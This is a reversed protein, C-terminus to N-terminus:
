SKSETGDWARAITCRQGLNSVLQATFQLQETDQETGDELSIEISKITQGELTLDHSLYKDERSSKIWELTWSETSALSALAVRWRRTAPTMASFIFQMPGDLVPFNSKTCPVKVKMTQVLNELSVDDSAYLSINYENPMIESDQSASIQFYKREQLYQQYYIKSSDDVHSVVVYSDEGQRMLQEFDHCDVLDQPCEGGKYVFGYSYCRGEDAPGDSAGIAMDLVDSCSTQPPALPANRGRVGEAGGTAFLLPLLTIRLFVSTGM